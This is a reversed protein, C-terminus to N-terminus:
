AGSKARVLSHSRFGSAADEPWIRSAILRIEHRSLGSDEIWWRQYRIRETATSVVSPYRIMRAM